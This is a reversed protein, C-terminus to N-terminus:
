KFLFPSRIWGIIDFLKQSRGQFFKYPARNKSANILTGEAKATRNFEMPFIM